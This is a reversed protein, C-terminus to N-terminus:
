QCALPGNQDDAPDSFLSAVTSPPPPLSPKEAPVVSLTAAATAIRTQLEGLEEHEGASLTQSVLTASEPPWSEGDDFCQQLKAVLDAADVGRVKLM